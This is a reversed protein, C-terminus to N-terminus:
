TSTYYVFVIYLYYASGTTGISDMNITLLSSFIDILFGTFINHRPRFRKKYARKILM